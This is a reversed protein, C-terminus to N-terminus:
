DIYEIEENLTVGFEMFVKEKVLKVLEKFDSATGGGNNVFFGAHKESVSIGGIRVGKLGAKDILYSAAYDGSRKFVSGLSKKSLPQKEKRNNMIENIKNRIKDESEYSLLFEAKLVTFGEDKVSSERYSFNIEDKKLGVCRKKHFDYVLLNKLRDSAEAGYAGANSAIMAGVTGPIGFLSEYGSLSRESAKSILHSFMAGSNAFLTNESFSFANYALTCVFVTDMEEDKPLVNTMNGIVRFPLDREALFDLLSIFKGDTDPYVVIDAIGGISISSFDSLKVNRRYKVDQNILFDILQNM